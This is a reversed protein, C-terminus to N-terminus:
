ASIEEPVEEQNRPVSPAVEPEETPLDFGYGVREAEDLRAQLDEKLKSYLETMTKPKHATWYNLIDDQARQNRLWTIRFRRFSHFRLGKPITIKEPEVKQIAAIVKTLRPEFQRRAVNGPLRPTGEQSPFLLGERGGFHGALFAAIDSHLDVERIGADTKTYPVIKGFRDVQQEIRITRFGNRFHKAELALAESIRLGTAGLLVYFAREWGQSLAILKTVEAATLCPQSQGKVEPMDMFDADWKRHYIPEGNKPNRLSAVISKVIQVYNAISKPSLGAAAMAEVLVKVSANDVDSVALDGLKPLLWKDLASQIDSRASTRKWIIENQCADPGFVEDLVTKAYHGIHWDLHVYISGDEALLERLLVATEYFWQLYSDLGHGWTDRYAKQELISPKKVFAAGPQQEGDSQSPITATFSFDSDTNFPPDIYILNVKGAFEPLLSPLVYKKDGWILRNRWETNRGSAFLELNRRRDQASENVTEITQFPLAIRVPGQKKGDKYKGDWILETVGIIEPDVQIATCRFAHLASFSRITTTFKV